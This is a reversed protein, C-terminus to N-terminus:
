IDQKQWSAKKIPIILSVHNIWSGNKGGATNVSEEAYNIETIVFPTESDYDDHRVEDGIRLGLLKIQDATKQIQKFYVIVWKGKLTQCMIACNGKLYRGIVTDRHWKSSIPKGVLTQMFKNAIEVEAKQNILEATELNANKYCATAITKHDECRCFKKKKGETSKSEFEIRYVALSSCRGNDGIGKDCYIPNKM